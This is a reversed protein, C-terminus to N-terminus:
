SNTVKMSWVSQELSTGNVTMTYAACVSLKSPEEKLSVSQTSIDMVIQGYPVQYQARHSKNEEFIMNMGAEGSRHMELYGDKCKIRSRFVTEYGELKEEYLFYHYGNKWYHRASSIVQEVQDPGTMVLKVQEGLVLKEM